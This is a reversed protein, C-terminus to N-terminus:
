LEGHGEELNNLPCYKCIEDLENQDAEIPMKCYNDCMEEKVKSIEMDNLIHTM